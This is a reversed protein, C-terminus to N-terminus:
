GADAGADPAGLIGEVIGTAAPWDFAVDVCAPTSEPECFTTTGGHDPYACMRAIYRGAAACTSAVCATGPGCTKQEYYTGDWPHQVGDPQMRTPPACSAPCAIPQCDSCNAFCPRDVIHERGDPGIVTLWTSSCTSPGGVCYKSRSASRMRFTVSGVVCAGGDVQGDAGGDIATDDVGTRGACGAVATAVLTALWRRPLRRRFLGLDIRTM